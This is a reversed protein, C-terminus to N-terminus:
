LEDFFARRREESRFPVAAEERSIVINYGL